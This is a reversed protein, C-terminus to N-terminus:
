LRAAIQHNMTIHISHNFAAYVNEILKDYRCRYLSKTKTRRKRETTRNLRVYANSYTVNM